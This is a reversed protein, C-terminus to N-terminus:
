SARKQGEELSRGNTGESMGSSFKAISGFSPDETPSGEPDSSKRSGEDEQGLPVTAKEADASGVLLATEYM